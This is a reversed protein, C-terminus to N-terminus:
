RPVNESQRADKKEKKKTGAVAFTKDPPPPTPAGPSSGISSPRAIASRSLAAADDEEDVAAVAAAPASSDVPMTADIRAAWSAAAFFAPSPRVDASSPMSSSSSGSRAASGAMGGSGRGSRGCATRGPSSTTVAASCSNQACLVILLASTWQSSPRLRPEDWRPSPALAVPVSSAAPMDM